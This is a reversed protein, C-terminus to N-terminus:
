AGLRDEPVAPGRRNPDAASLRRAQGYVARAREYRGGLELCDGLREAVDARSDVDLDDLRRGAELASTYFGAAEIPAGNRQAREGAVSSYRWSERFRGARHFHISLLEALADADDSSQELILAARHHLARRARFALGEYAVDRLLIHRFRVIGSTEPTLFHTLRRVDDAVQAPPQEVMPALVEIQFQGGLM